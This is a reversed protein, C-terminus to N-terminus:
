ARQTPKFNLLRDVIRQAEELAAKWQEIEALEPPAPAGM